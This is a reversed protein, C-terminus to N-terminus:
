EGKRNSELFRKIKMTTTKAFDTTRIKINKVSKYPVMKSNMEKIKAWIEEKIKSMEPLKGGHTEKIYEEDLTVVASLITDNTVEEGYVLCEKIEPFKAIEDEIEEPFINKGNPTVIVSKCRGTIILNGGKDMKGLDGTHFWGDEMVASTAEEDEYYGLMVNDGKVLIEGVGNEDINDLRVECNSAKGVTGSVRGKEPTGAVVPATESLGYGQLVNFGLDEFSDVLEKPVPAASILVTRLKGGLASHIEKFIKKKLKYGMKGLANTIKVMKAVLQEKGQAKISKSIKAYIHTLLLPVGVIITPNTENLEQSVYKLGTCIAVSAGNVIPYMTGVISEYIHHMPLVSFFKDTPYVKLLGPAGEIVSLVNKHSLMVGKSTATTGSTFLLIRFEERDVKHEAYVTNGELLMKSGEKIVEDLSLSSEDSVEKDMNIYIIDKNINGKISNITEEKKSSYIICGANSRKLLNEIENAPLEKDLPVIIGVGTTVALYSMFWKYSNEGIVAVKRGELNYKAVLVTALSMADERLKKYTIEEFKKSSKNKELFAVNNEYKVCTKQIIDKLTTLEGKKIM